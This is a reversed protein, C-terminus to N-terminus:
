KEIKKLLVLSEKLGFVLKFTVILQKKTEKLTINKEKRKTFNFIEQITINKRENQKSKKNFSLTLKNNKNTIKDIVMLSGLKKIEM